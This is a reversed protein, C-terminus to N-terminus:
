TTIPSLVRQTVDDIHSRIAMAATAVNMDSVTLLFGRNRQKENARTPGITLVRLLRVIFHNIEPYASQVQKHWGPSRAVLIHTFPEWGTMDATPVHLSRLEELTQPMREPLLWGAKNSGTGTGKGKEPKRPAFPTPAPMSPWGVRPQPDPRPARVPSLPAPLDQPPNPVTPTERRETENFPWFRRPEEEEESDPTERPVWSVGGVGEYRYRLNEWNELLDRAQSGSLEQFARDRPMWPPWVGSDTPVFRTGM